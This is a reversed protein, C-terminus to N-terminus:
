KKRLHLIRLAKQLRWYQRMWFPYAMDYVYGSQEIPLSVKARYKHLTKRLEKRLVPTYEKYKPAIKELEMLSNSLVWLLSKVAQQSASYLGMRNFFELEQQVAEVADLRKPSWESRTISEENCYYYYLPEQLVSVFQNQFILKYTTFADEHLKGVPFRVQKWLEKKYLKACAIVFVVEPIGIEYIQGSLVKQPELFNVTLPQKDKKVRQFRCISVGTELAIATKYLKELYAYHVWDDSDVFTLWESESHTFAWDIGANRAASLGGNKQHIVHVRKDQAAYKDCIAPCNDPSGDDVLILEFDTFTQQLISEVCRHLYPEVNYVPM